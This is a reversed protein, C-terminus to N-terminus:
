CLIKSIKEAIQKGLISHSEKALHIGDVKSVEIFYGANLFGCDESQTVTKILEPLKLAKEEGGHFEEEFSTPVNQIPAPAAVLIKPTTGVYFQKQKITRILVKIGGAIDSATLAYRYKLDNTGLMIIVIDVPQHTDLCPSLYELGSKGPEFHDSVVTTRGPNGEEIVEVSQRLEAQLVGPWRNEFSYREVNEPSQIPVCGWTNSDGYCLVRWLAM